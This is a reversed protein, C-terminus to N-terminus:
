PADRCDRPHGGAADIEIRKLQPPDSGPLVFQFAVFLHRSGDVVRWGAESGIDIWAPGPRADKLLVDLGRPSKDPGPPTFPPALTEELQRIEYVNRRSDFWVEIRGSHALDPIGYPDASGFAVVSGKLVRKERFWDDKNRGFTDVILYGVDARREKELKAAKRALDVLLAPSPLEIGIDDPPPTPVLPRRVGKATVSGPTPTLLLMDRYTNLVEFVPPRESRRWVPYELYIKGDYPRGPENELSTLDLLQPSGVAGVMPVGSLGSAMAISWRDAVSVKSAPGYSHFLRGSDPWFDALSSMGLVLRSGTGAVARSANPMAADGNSFLWPRCYDARGGQPGCKLPGHAFVQCSAALLWWATSGRLVTEVSTDDAQGLFSVELRNPNGHCSVALGATQLRTTEEWEGITAVDLAAALFPQGCPFGTDFLGRLPDATM